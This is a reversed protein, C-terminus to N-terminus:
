RRARRGPNDSLDKLLEEITDKRPDISVTETRDGWTVEATIGTVGDSALISAFEDIARRDFNTVQFAVSSSPIGAAAGTLRALPGRPSRALVPDHLSDFFSHSHKSKLSTLDLHVSEAMRGACQVEITAHISM